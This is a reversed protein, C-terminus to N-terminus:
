FKARIGVTIVRGLPSANVPDYGAVGVGNNGGIAFTNYQPPDEDLVNTADVFLQTERSFWLDQFRYSVNLDLTGFSDVPDGGSVPFGGVRVVPIATSGSWNRYSGLYNYYANASFAGIGYRVSLRGEDKVSPFTTNFGATGLVSFKTGTAGFFQDFKDKYTYAAGLVFNGISTDFAYMASLDYGAVDLNLVNRQQFNYIFYTTANLAGTQPLGATAAAIQAPTAGTSYFQILYSLDSSGLVLSPVPATIGGRLENSWRTVSLQFGPLFDPTFDFGVSWSKGTQPELGGNGGTLFLGTVNNLSCTVSGPPCGPIGIASPFNATVITPAGGPLAGGQIGSFGSEGTLGADNAGRSTLAPAVFAEAYNGRFKFGQIVEWNFAIKPNTTSGFDSYDDYRGSLNLDLARVLPIGQNAGILPLYVEAYVSKVDREYPISLIASGTSAPGTNNPRTIDQDLAYDLYEGGVALKAEGGPMSFLDGAFKFYVNQITQDGVQIQTSDTLRSLVEASTGSGFPDLANAATLPTNLVATTTGPISPATTNGGGNTTGNIALNFCSGCMQGYNQQKATDIGFLYGLNFSWSDSLAYEGDLRGYLTEASGEIYAGPGLLADGSFNVSVQNTTAPAGAPIRFFPSIQGALATTNGPGFMTASANGRPVDQRNTRDSYIFDGTLDLREGIQQQVSMFINHRRESGILDAHFSPDCDGAVTGAPTTYPSYFTQAATGSGVTISAPGCRNTTFNRGGRPRQDARVYDRDVAELNDRDSFNYSFLLSGTEWNTGALFGANLTSYGDAFGTQVSAEVGEVNRRTIFNVVGAVADSGYVSSAGDALVEVRELALPAVINPDALVHNIGSVPLRHGNLLVLTSNSASAGLGHITPANTGAGDFSGYAGQGASQLGVVSPVTKLIQQVTQAGLDEIEERGVTVLNSGVPAVGKISSGTVVIEELDDSASAAAQALAQGSFAVGLAALISTRVAFGTTSSM